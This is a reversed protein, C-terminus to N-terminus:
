STTKKKAIRDDLEKNLIVYTSRIRLRVRLIGGGYILAKNSNKGSSSMDFIDVLNYGQLALRALYSLDDTPIAQDFQILSREKYTLNKVKRDINAIPMPTGDMNIFPNKIVIGSPTDTTQDIEAYQMGLYSKDHNTTDCFELNLKNLPSFDTIHLNGCILIKLKPLSALPTLNSITNTEWDGKQEEGHGIVLRNLNTCYQLGEISSINKHDLNLSTLSSLEAATINNRDDKGLAQNLAKRLNLDPINVIQDQTLSM